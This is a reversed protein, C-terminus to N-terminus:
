LSETKYSTSLESYNKAKLVKHEKKKYQLNGTYFGSIGSSPRLKVTSDINHPINQLRLSVDFFVIDPTCM